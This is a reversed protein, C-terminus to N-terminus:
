QPRHDDRQNVESLRDFSRSINLIDKLVVSHISRKFSSQKEFWLHNIMVSHSLHAIRRASHFVLLDM